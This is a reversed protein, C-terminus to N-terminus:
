NKLVPEGWTIPGYLWGQPYQRLVRLTLRKVNTIGTKFTGPEDGFRVNRKEALLKGDGIIQFTTYEVDRRAQSIREQEEADIGFSTEFTKFRGNIDYVIASEIWQGLGHSQKSRGICLAKRNFSRDIQLAGKATDIQSPWLESLRVEKEDPANRFKPYARRNAKDRWGEAAYWRHGKELSWDEDFLGVDLFTEFGSSKDDFVCFDFWDRNELPMWDFWNGFRHTMQWMGKWTTAAQLVVLRKRSSPNPYVLKLGLDDGRYEKNGVTVAGDGIRVPLRGIVSATVRNAHPAGFLVLNKDEIDEKDVETDLKAPPWVQFRRRWQRRFRQAEEAIMKREFEDKATTGIVILFPDRFADYIPGELGEEKHLGSPPNDSYKWGNGDKRLRIRKPPNDPLEIREGGHSISVSPYPADVSFQEIHEAKIIEYRANNGAAHLKVDIYAMKMRNSLREIHLWYARGHRLDGTKFRVREPMAVKKYKKMWDFREVVSM